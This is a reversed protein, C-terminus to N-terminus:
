DCNWALTAREAFRSVALDIATGLAPPELTTTHAYIGTRVAERM